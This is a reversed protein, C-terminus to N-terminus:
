GVWPSLQSPFYAVGEPMAGLALVAPIAVILTVPVLLVAMTLRAVTFSFFRGVSASAMIEGLHLLKRRSLQDVVQPMFYSVLVVSLWHLPTALPHRGAAPNMAWFLALAFSPISALAAGGVVTGPHRRVRRLADKWAGYSELTKLKLGLGEPLPLKM